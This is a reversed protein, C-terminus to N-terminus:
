LISVEEFICTSGVFCSVFLSHSLSLTLLIDCPLSRPSIAHREQANFENCILTPIFSFSTGAAELEEVFHQQEAPSVNLAFVVESNRHCEEGYHRLLRLMIKHLGLGRAMVLLGDEDLVEELIERHCELIM